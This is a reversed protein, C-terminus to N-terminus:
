QVVREIGELKGVSLIRAVMEQNKLQEKRRMLIVGVIERRKSGESRAEM